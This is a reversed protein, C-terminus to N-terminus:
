LPQINPNPLIQNLMSSVIGRWPRGASLRDDPVPTAVVLPACTGDLGKKNQKSRKEKSRINPSAVPHIYVMHTRTHTHTYTHIRPSTKGLRRWCRPSPSESRPHAQLRPSVSVHSANISTCNPEEGLATQPPANFPTVKFLVTLALHSILQGSKCFTGFATTLSDAHRVDHLRKLFRGLSIIGSRIKRWDCRGQLYENRASLDSYPFVMKIRAWSLRCFELSSGRQAALAAPLRVFEDYKGLFVGDRYRRLISPTHIWCPPGKERWECSLSASFEM